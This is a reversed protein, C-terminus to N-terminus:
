TIINFSPRTRWELILPVLVDEVWPSVSMEPTRSSSPHISPENTPHISPHICPQIYTHVTHIYINISSHISPHKYPNISPHNYTHISTYLSSLYIYSQQNAAHISPQINYLSMINTSPHNYSHINCTHQIYTYICPYMQCLMWYILSRDM